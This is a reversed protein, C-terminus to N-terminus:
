QIMTRNDTYTKLDAGNVISWAQNGEPLIVPIGDLLAETDQVTKELKKITLRLKASAERQKEINADLEAKQKALEEIKAKLNM